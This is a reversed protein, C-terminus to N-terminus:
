ERNSRELNAQLVISLGPRHEGGSAQTSEKKVNNPKKKRAARIEVVSYSVARRM